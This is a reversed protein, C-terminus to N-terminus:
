HLLTARCILKIKAKAPFASAVGIMDLEELWAWLEEEHGVARWSEQLAEAEWQLVRSPRLHSRGMSPKAKGGCGVWLGACSVCRIRLICRRRQIRSRGFVACWVAVPKRGAMVM